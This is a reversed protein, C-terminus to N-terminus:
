PTLATAAGVPATSAVPAPAVSPAPASEKPKAVPIFIHFTTGHGIKSQVEIWGQHQNVMGYVTALGLGSGKGIEKTTFFPEFLHDITKQDMGAGTDAVGLRVFDGPRREPKGAADKEAFNVPHASITLNGTEGIADRANVALNVIIQQMMGHDAMVPPLHPAIDLRITINEGLTRVLIDVTERITERVDLSAVLMVKKRSFALMQNVLRTARGVSDSIQRLSRASEDDLNPNDLLLCAHGQIVTLINNFEHAVGASLQGVAALREQRLVLQQSEQLARQAQKREAVELQLSRTWEDILQFVEQDRKKLAAQRWRQAWRYGVFAGGAIILWCVSWLPVSKASLVLIM